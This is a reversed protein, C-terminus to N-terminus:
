KWVGAINTISSLSDEFGNELFSWIVMNQNLCNKINQRVKGCFSKLKTSWFNWFVSFKGKWICLVNAKSRLTVEFDNELFSEIVLKSNVNDQPSQRTKGSFPKLKTVWFQAFFQFYERWVCLINTKSSLNAEFGNDLFMGIVLNQNSYNQVIQRLKRCFSKLKTAWFNCFVLFHRKWVSLVNTKPSLSAKRLLTRHGLKSKFM